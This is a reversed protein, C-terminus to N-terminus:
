HTSLGHLGAPTRKGRRQLLVIKCSLLARKCEIKTDLVSGFLDASHCTLTRAGRVLCSPPQSLYLRTVPKVRSAPFCRVENVSEWPSGAGFSMFRSRFVGTQHGSASLSAPYTPSLHVLEASLLAKRWPVCSPLLGDRRNVCPKGHRHARRGALLASVREQFVGRATSVDLVKPWRLVSAVGPQKGEVFEETSGEISRDSGPRSGPHPPAAGVLYVAATTCLDTERSPCPAITSLQPCGSYLCKWPM